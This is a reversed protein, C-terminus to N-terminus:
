ICWLRAVLRRKSKVFIDTFCILRFLLELRTFVIESTKEAGLFRRLSDRAMEFGETVQWSMRHVSRGGCAPYKTYYEMISDIVQQPRLTMCASDLYIPADETNLIPFDGRYKSIDM